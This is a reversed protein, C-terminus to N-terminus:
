KKTYLVFENTIKKQDQVLLTKEPVFILKVVCAVRVLWGFEIGVLIGGCLLYLLYGCLVCIGVGKRRLDNSYYHYHNYCDNGDKCFVGDKKM